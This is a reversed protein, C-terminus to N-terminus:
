KVPLHMENEVNLATKPSALKSKKESPPKGHSLRESGSCLSKAVSVM